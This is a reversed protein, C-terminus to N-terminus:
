RTMMPDVLAVSADQQGGDAERKPVEDTDSFNDFGPVAAAFAATTVTV